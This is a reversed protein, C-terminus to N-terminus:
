DPRAYRDTDSGLAEIADIVLQASYDFNHAWAGPDRAVVQYNCSARLLPASWVQYANSASAESDDCRGDDNNDKMWHPYRAPHYCIPQGAAEANGRIAVLLEALLGDLEASIPEVLDGDGDHDPRGAGRIAEPNSLGQHCPACREVEIGWDPSEPDLEGELDPGHCSRCANGGAHELPGAYARGAGPQGATGESGALLQETAAQIEALETPTAPADNDSMTGALTDFTCSALVWALLPLLLLPLLAHSNRLM